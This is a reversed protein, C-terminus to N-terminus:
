AARAAGAKTHLRILGSGLYGSFRLQLEQLVTIEPLARWTASPASFPVGAEAKIM